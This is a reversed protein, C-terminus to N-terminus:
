MEGEQAMKVKKKAEEDSLEMDHVDKSHKKFVQVLEEDSDAHMHASCMPCKVSAM